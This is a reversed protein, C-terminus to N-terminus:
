HTELLAPLEKLLCYYYRSCINSKKTGFTQEGLPNEEYFDGESSRSLKRFVEPHRM